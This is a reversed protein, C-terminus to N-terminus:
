QICYADLRVVEGSVPGYSDAERISRLGTIKGSPCQVYLQMLVNQAYSDDYVPNGTRPGMNILALLTALNESDNSGGNGAPIHLKELLMNPKVKDAIGALASLDIGAESVKVSIPILPGQSQDIDSIQVHDLRACASLIVLVTTAVLLKYM